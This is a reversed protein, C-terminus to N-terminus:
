RERRSGLVPLARSSRRTLWAPLWGGHLWAFYFPILWLSVAFALPWFHFDPFLELGRGDSGARRTTEVDSLRRRVFPTLPPVVFRPPRARLWVERLLWGVFNEFAELARNGCRTDGRM